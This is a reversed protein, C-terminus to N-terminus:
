LTSTIKDGFTPLRRTPPRPSTLWPPKEKEHAYKSSLPGSM